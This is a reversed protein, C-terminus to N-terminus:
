GGMEQLIISLYYHVSVIGALTLNSLIVLVRLINFEQKGKVTDHTFQVSSGANQCGGVRFSM